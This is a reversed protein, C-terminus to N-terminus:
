KVSKDKTSYDDIYGVKSGGWVEGHRAHMLDEYMVVVDFIFRALWRRM